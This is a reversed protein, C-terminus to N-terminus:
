CLLRDVLHLLALNGHLMRLIKIADYHFTILIFASLTRFRAAGVIRSDLLGSVDVVQVPAPDAIRFLKAITETSRM